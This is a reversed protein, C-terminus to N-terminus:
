LVAPCQCHRSRKLNTLGDSSCDVLELGSGLRCEKVAVCLDTNGTGWGALEQQTFNSVYYTQVCRRM